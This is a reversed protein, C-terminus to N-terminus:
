VMGFQQLEVFQPYSKALLDYGVLAYMYAGYLVHYADEKPECTICAYGCELEVEPTEELDGKRAAEKVFEAVTYALISCASCVIDRGIDAQGAHGDLTLTLRGDDEKFFVKLM